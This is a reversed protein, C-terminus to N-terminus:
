LGPKPSDNVVEHYAFSGANETTRLRNYLEEKIEDPSILVDEEDGDEEMDCEDEEEVEDEAEARSAENENEAVPNVDAQQGFEVSRTGTGNNEGVQTTSEVQAEAAPDVIQQSPVDDSDDDTALIEPATAM